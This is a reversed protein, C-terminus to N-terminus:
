RKLKEYVTDAVKVGSLIAMQTGVGPAGADAGVFYLGEIPSAIDPKTDGCQGVKQALGITEGGAGPVTADRTANSVSKTTYMDKSEICAEL